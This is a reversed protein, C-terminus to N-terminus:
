PSPSPMMDSAIHLSLNTASAEDCNTIMGNQDLSCSMLFLERNGTQDSSFLLEMGHTPVELSVPTDASIQSHTLAIATGGGSNLAYLEHQGDRDSAFLIQLGDPSFDPERDDDTNSTLQDVATGNTNMLFIERDGDRDSTFLIQSGDPSFSPSREDSGNITLQELNGGDNDFLFVEFDSEPNSIADFRNSIFVIQSGDPSYAADQDIGPHNSLNVPLSGDPGMVFLEFNGTRNTTFLIQKGDPSFVPSENIVGSEENTLQTTSAGPTNGVIEMTFIEFSGTRDSSFTILPTYVFAEPLVVIQGGTTVSVSVLTKKFVSDTTAILSTEGLVNVATAELGGFTVVADSAFHNGLITVATKGSVPGEAKGSATTVSSISPLLGFLSRDGCSTLSVFFLSFLLLRLRLV